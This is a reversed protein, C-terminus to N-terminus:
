ITITQAIQALAQTAKEKQMAEELSMHQPKSALIHSFGAQQLLEQNSIGGSILITPIGLKKARQMVMYPTKGMLTQTDSHGEGTIVIDCGKLKADFNTIELIYEAGSSLRAGWFGMLAAGIGGAAGAGAATSISKQSYSDLLNGFNHLGAELEDIQTDNAGKQRAFTHAAGQKGYLPATVDSAVVFSCEKLRKDAKHDDIQTIASLTSTPLNNCDIFTYGLALLMGVGADTTASGGLGIVFERFGMDMAASIAEGIGYSTAKMADREKTAIMTLGAIQAIEIYAKKDKTVFKAKTPRMLADHCDIEVTNYSDSLELIDIFGEGGDAIPAITTLTDKTELIGQEVARCAELSSLSGKFSDM